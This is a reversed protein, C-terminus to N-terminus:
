RRYETVSLIRGMIVGWKVMDDLRDWLFVECGSCGNGLGNELHRILDTEASYGTKGCDCMETIITWPYFMMESGDRM